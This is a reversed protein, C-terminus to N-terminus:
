MCSLEMELRDLAALIDVVEDQVRKAEERSQNIKNQTIWDSVINDFVIDMFRQFDTIGVSVEIAVHVSGLKEQLEVLSQQVENLLTEAQRIKKHKIMGTLVGGGLMDYFGWGGASKLNKEVEQLLAIVEHAIARTENIAKLQDMDVSYGEEAGLIDFWFVTKGPM